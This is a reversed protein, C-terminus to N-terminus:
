IVAMLMGFKVLVVNLSANSAPTLLKNLLNFFDESIDEEDFKETMEKSIDSAKIARGGSEKLSVDANACMYTLYMFAEKVTKIEYLPSSSSFCPEQGALKMMSLIVSIAVTRLMGDQAKGTLKSGVIELFYLFISIIGIFDKCACACEEQGKELSEALRELEETVAVTTDRPQDESLFEKAMAQINAM